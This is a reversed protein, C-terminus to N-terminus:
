EHKEALIEAQSKGVTETGEGFVGVFELLAKKRGAKEAKEQAELLESLKQVYEPAIYAGKNQGTKKDTLFVIDAPIKGRVFERFSVTAKTM